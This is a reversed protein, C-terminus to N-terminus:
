SVVVSLAFTSVNVLLVIVPRTQHSNHLHPHAVWNYLHLHVARSHMATSQRRKVFYPLDPPAEFSSNNGLQTMHVWASFQEVSYKTDHKEKLKLVISEVDDIKQRCAERKTSPASQTDCHGLSRSHKGSKLNNKETSDGKTKNLSLMAGCYSKGSTETSKM